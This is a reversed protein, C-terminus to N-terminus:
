AYFQISICHYKHYGLLYARWPTTQKRPVGFIINYLSHYHIKTLMGSFKMKGWLSANNQWQPLYMITKKHLTNFLPNWQKYREAFLLILLCLWYGYVLGSSARWAAKLKNRKNRWCHMQSYTPFCNKQQFLVIRIRLRAFHLLCLHKPMSEGCKRICLLLRGNNDWGMWYVCSFVWAIGSDDDFEPLFYSLAKWEKEKRWVVRWVIWPSFM